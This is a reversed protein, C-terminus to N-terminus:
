RWPFSGHRVVTVSRQANYRCMRVKLYTGYGVEQRRCHRIWPAIGFFLLANPDCYIIDIIEKIGVITNM